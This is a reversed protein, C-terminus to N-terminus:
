ETEESTSPEVSPTATARPDAPITPILPETAVPAESPVADNSQEEAQQNAFILEDINEPLPRLYLEYYEEYTMGSAVVAQAIEVGVYRYHWPEYNIGTIYEKGQPYRLIFGYDQCNISVWAFETTEEFTMDPATSALDMALGTQHESFGPQIAYNNAEDAGVSAVYGDYASQQSAYDRYGSSVFFGTPYGLATYAESMRSLAASAEEALQIGAAAYRVSVEGIGVPSYDSGLYNLKNVLMNVNTSDSQQSQDMNYPEYYQNDLTFSAYSNEPHNACDDIYMQIDNIKPLTLLVTLEYDKLTSLLTLIESESYGKVVLRQYKLILNDDITSNILYLPLYQTNVDLQNEFVSNITNTYRNLDIVEDVLDQERIGNIALESYGLKELKRDDLITPLTIAFLVVLVIAIGIYITWPKLPKDSPKPLLSQVMSRFKNMGAKGKHKFQNLGQKM